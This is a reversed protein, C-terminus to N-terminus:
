GVCILDMKEELVRKLQAKEEGLIDSLPLRPPGARLGLLEMAAKAYTIYLPYGQSVREQFLRRYEYLRAYLEFARTVDGAQAAEYMGRLLSPAFNAAVTIFGPAGALMNFVALPEGAPVIPFQGGFRRLEEYYRVPHSNTEKIAAMNKLQFLREMLDLSVNIKTTGPNNYLIIPVDVQRDIQGFFEYIEDETPKFYYPIVLMVGDAGVAEAHQSLEIVTQLDTHSTGAVVLARSDTARVTAEVVQKREEPSMSPFEGTSGCPILVSVGGELMFQVNDPIAELDLEYNRKFPTVMPVMIGKLRRKFEDHAM